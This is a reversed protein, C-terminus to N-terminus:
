TPRDIKPLRPSTAGGGSGPRQGPRRQPGQGPSSISTRRKRSGGDKPEITLQYAQGDRIRVDWTDPQSAESVTVAASNTTPTFEWDSLHRSLRGYPMGEHVIACSRFRQLPIIREPTGSIRIRFWQKRMGVFFLLAAFAFLLVLLLVLIATRPAGTRLAFSVDAESPNVNNLSHVDQFNFIRSAKDIGFIGAMNARELRVGVGDFSLRVRGTHQVIAGKAALRLWATFGHTSLSVPRISRLLVTIERTGNPPIPEGISGAETQFMEPPLAQANLDRQAWAEPVFPSALVLQYRGSTVSHQTLFSKVQGKLQLQIQQGEKFLGNPNGVSVELNPVAQLELADIALNKLKLHERGPFLPQPPDGHSQEAFRFESRFKRDYYALTTKPIPTTSVLIGYIALASRQGTSPDRFPYKFLHV